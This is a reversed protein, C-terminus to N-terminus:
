TSSTPVAQILATTSGAEALMMLIASMVRASIVLANALRARSPTMVSFSLITPVHVVSERSLEQLFLVVCFLLHDKEGPIDSPEKAETTIQYRIRSPM